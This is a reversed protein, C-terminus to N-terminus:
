VSTCKKYILALTNTQKQPLTNQTQQTAIGEENCHRWLSTDIIADWIVPMEITQEVTQEPASWFIYWLEADSAKGLPIWRAGTSEGWWLGTIRFINGSSSTMMNITM